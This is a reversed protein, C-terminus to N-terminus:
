VGGQKAFYNQEEIWARAAQIAKTEQDAIFIVTGTPHDTTRGARGAMQVLSRVDFIKHDAYLVIVQVKPVTIGRELISTSIFIDYKGDLFANVKERRKSDSSWSGEIITAPFMRIFVDVWEEVLAVVPVFVLLPGNVMIKRIQAELTKIMSWQNIRAAQIPYELYLPMKFWQPIPLPQGHHRLALRIVPCQGVQTKKLLEESPTATMYIIQGEQRLAIKIGYHLAVSGSYPYADVEDLIIVDFCRYFKLVQHTTAVTLQTHEFDAPMAGTLIKISINPFNKELRPHVDHVVDQRPAAFLVKKGESIYKAILPFCVETKGAGCAAWVLVEKSQLDATYALLKEAAKMQASTFEITWKKELTDEDKNWSTEEICLKHPNFRWLAQLSTQCGMIECELCTGATGYLCPWQQIQISSCRECKWGSEDRSIAPLWEGFGRYVAEDLEQILENNEIGMINAMTPLEGESIQRGAIIKLLTSAISIDIQSQNKKPSSHEETHWCFKEEVMAGDKKLGKVLLNIIESDKKSEKSDSSLLSRLHFTLYSLPLGPKLVKVFPKDLVPVASFSITGRDDILVYFLM